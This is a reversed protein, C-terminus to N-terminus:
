INSRGYVQNRVQQGVHGWTQTYIPHRFQGYFFSQVEVHVKANVANEVQKQVNQWLKEYVQHMM